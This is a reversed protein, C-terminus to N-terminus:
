SAKPWRTIILPQHKDFGSLKWIEETIFPMFPHLLKLLTAFSEALVKYSVLGKKYAELYIDAFEHWTFQYLNEAAMGLKFNELNNTVDKRLLKLRKLLKLDSSGPDAIKKEDTLIFRGINWLKNSFNRYSLIKEESVRQDQGPGVNAVLAFRLADAGYKDAM